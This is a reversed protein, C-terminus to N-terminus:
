RGEEAELSVWLNGTILFLIRKKAVCYMTKLLLERKHVGSTQSVLIINITPVARILANNKYPLSLTM